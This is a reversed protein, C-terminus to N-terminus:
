KTIKYNPIKIQKQIVLAKKTVVPPETLGRATCSAEQIFM